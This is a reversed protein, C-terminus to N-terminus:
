CLCFQGELYIVSINSTSNFVSLGKERNYFAMVHIDNYVTKKKIKGV